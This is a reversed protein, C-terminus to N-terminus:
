WQGSLHKTAAETVKNPYDASFYWVGGMESPSLGRQAATLGTRMTLVIDSSMWPHRYWYHHGTIDFGRLEKGASVDIIEVNKLHKKEIFDVEAQLSKEEGARSGGGMFREGAILANDADSMTIVVHESVKSIPELRNLFSDLEVDAAAFVVTGIRNQKKSSSSDSHLSELAKSTVRGGASYSLINIKEARTNKALFKILQKLPEGSHRARKVDEGLFYSFINQHSPWAFAVGVFDRGAFHDIEATLLASNEFDVKTGHVYIMIEKDLATALQANIKQAFAEASPNNDESSTLTALEEIKGLTLPVPTEGTNTLTTDRLKIWTDSPDALFADATGLHLDSSFSNGYKIGNKDDQRSRTTAYFVQTDPTKHNETLHAFPDLKSHTFLVPTPMLSYKREHSCGIALLCFLVLPLNGTKLSAPMYTNAFLTTQKALVAPFEPPQYEFAPTKL